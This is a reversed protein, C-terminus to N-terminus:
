RGMIRGMLIWVLTFVVGGAAARGVDGGGFVYTGVAFALGGALGPLYRRDM